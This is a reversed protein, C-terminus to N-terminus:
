SVKGEHKLEEPLDRVVQLPMSWEGCYDGTKVTPWCSISGGTVSPFPVPPNRRCIGRNEDNMQFWKCRRCTNAHNAM